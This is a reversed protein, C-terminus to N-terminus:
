IKIPYKGYLLSIINRLTIRKSPDKELCNNIVYDLIYDETKSKVPNQTKVIEMFQPGTVNDPYVFPYTGHLIYYMTIGLSWVDSEFFYEKTEVSEPSTLLYPSGINLCCEKADKGDKDHKCLKEAFCSIGFDVLVSEGDEKILINDYKVDNHIVGNSHLHLLARSIESIVRRVLFIKREGQYSVSKELLNVGSIYEMELIGRRLSPFYKSDYYCTLYRHCNPKSIKSLINTETKFTYLAQETEIDIVKLAVIKDTFLNQAKWVRGFNGRGILFLLKFGPIKDDGFYKNYIMEESDMSSLSSSSSSFSSSRNSGLLDIISGTNIYDDPLDPEM